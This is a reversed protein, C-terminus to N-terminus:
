AAAGAHAAEPNLYIDYRAQTGEICADPKRQGLWPARSPRKIAIRRAGSDLAAALLGDADDDGGTLDRLFQMAKQPLASKGDHPYMPDLHVCDAGRAAGSRLWQLADANIVDIRQAAAAFDAQDAMAARERADVLLEALLSQRELMTVRAGLASLTFGDRGLGATADIIHSDPRKPLGVARALLQKRGGRIRRLVDASLWDAELHGYTPRESDRLKLRGNDRVCFFRSEPLTV